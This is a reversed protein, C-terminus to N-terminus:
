LFPGAEAYKPRGAAAVAQSPWVTTHYDKIKKSLMGFDQVSSARLLVLWVVLDAAFVM